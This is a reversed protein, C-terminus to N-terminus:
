KTDNHKWFAFFLLFGLFRMLDFAAILRSIFWGSLKRSEKREFWYTEEEGNIVAKWSKSTVNKLKKYIGNEMSQMTNIVNQNITMSQGNWNM